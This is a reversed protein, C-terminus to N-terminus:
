EHLADITIYNVVSDENALIQNQSPKRSTFSKHDLLWDGEIALDINIEEHSETIYFHRFSGSEIFYFCDCIEGKELLFSGEKCNSINIKPAVIEIDKETFPGIRSVSDLVKEFM